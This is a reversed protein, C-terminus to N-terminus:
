QWTSIREDFNATFVHFYLTDAVYEVFGIEIFTLGPIGLMMEAVLRRIGDIVQTNEYPVWKNKRSIVGNNDASFRLVEKVYGDITIKSHLNHTTYDRLIAEYLGESLSVVSELYPKM